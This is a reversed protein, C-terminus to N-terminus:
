SVGRLCSTKSIYCDAGLSIEQKRREEATVCIPLASSVQRAKM